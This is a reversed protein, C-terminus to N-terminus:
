WDLDKEYGLEILEEGFVKKMAEKHELTFYEKWSGIQGSRFTGEGPKGFLTQAKETIEEINKHVGVFKLINKIANIQILFSGGGEKGVLEEFHVVHVFGPNLSLWPLRRGIISKTASLGYRDGTIIELLKEELSLEGYGLDQRLPGYSWGKEIYFLLSVAQDRPDRMLFIVKYGLIELTSIITDTPLAHMHVFTNEREAQALLDVLHEESIQHSWNNICPMDLMVSLTKTLLHTGTKEPTVVFFREQASLSSFIGLFFFYLAYRWM